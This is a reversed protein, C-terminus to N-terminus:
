GGTASAADNFTTLVSTGLGRTAATAAAAVPAAIPGHEIVTAARRNRVLRRVFSM